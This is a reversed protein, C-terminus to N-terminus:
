VESAVLPAILASFGLGVALGIFLGVLSPHSYTTGSLQVAAGILLGILGGVSTLGAAVTFLVRLNM